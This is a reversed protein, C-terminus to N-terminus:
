TLLAGKNISFGDSPATSPPTVTGSDGGGVPGSGAGGDTSGSSNDGPDTVVSFDENNNNSPVETGGSNQVCGTLALGAAIFIVMSLNRM